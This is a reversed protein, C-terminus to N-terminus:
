QAAEQEVDAGSMADVLYVQTGAMPDRAQLTHFMPADSGNLDVVTAGAGRVARELWPPATLDIRTVVGPTVWVPVGRLTGSLQLHFHGCLVARVDTGALAAGLDDANRLGVSKMLPSSELAIPPHHLVVISGADAPESLIARLWTVQAASVLGHVSGPVLSDLTIIRLGAIHSVAAHEEGADTVPLGLDSGDPGLHGTGFVSGFAARMDHNGTCYVHPIGREAAFRGVRERVGVCGEASGDDAIDGSVVVLDIGPVFRADYLMRDLAASADVGDEDVGHATLHTDSLHLIRHRGTRAPLHDHPM